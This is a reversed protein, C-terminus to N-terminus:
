GLARAALVLALRWLCISRTRSMLAAKRSSRFRV